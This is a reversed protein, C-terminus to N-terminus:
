FIGLLLIYVLARPKNFPPALCVKAPSDGKKFKEPEPDGPIGTLLDAFASPAAFLTPLGLLVGAAARHFM